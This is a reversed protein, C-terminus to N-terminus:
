LFKAVEEKTHCLRLFSKRMLDLPIVTFSISLVILLERATLGYTRFVRGGFYLILIQIVLVLSMVTVFAKNKIINSMINIRQTRASLSNFVACFMFLAFFGTMLYESGASYRFSSAIGPFKLFLICLFTTYVSSIVIQNEMYDNIIKEGKKKPLEEMYEPLPAEGAFALGALTDMVMNIWLMQTVTIPTEIGLFQSILTISMACINISLQFVIFKRISKFITRGYLIAKVISSFNDDLIVIDSAEKAVETGSGLSFGVDAKKLAPADNVGDGTMGAVLNLEQSLRVLRSKDSPLARAVVRIKPLYKKLQDDTMNQMEDSTLVMHGRAYDLLNSEKGISVATEKSDGTIMVVQVGANTVEEISKTVDQRLEDKICAIGVLTLNSFGKVLKDAAEDSTALALLRNGSSSMDKALKNIQFINNMEMKTGDERYYNTCFPLIKDPAGKLLTVNLDGAVSSASYKNKSDFSIESLKRVDAKLVPYSMAFGLMARDTSNGGVPSQKKGDHGITSGNNYVSSIYIIKWLDKEEKLNYMNDYVKGSGTIFKSVQMKGMTLTGTKDTFLINLSGATEIGVLKRVLVNDKIMRKMNSSLVVTIMVPLGEPVAVVIITVALTLARIVDQALTYPNSLYLMIEAMNFHNDMAISKFLSSVLILFAGLYGIRSIFAALDKLREKLPSDSKDQQLERALRGYYTKEGVDTVLMTASGQCVTSSNFVMYPNSFSLEEKKDHDVIAASVKHAEKTEGNLSSQDTDIQGDILIGDAPIRDGQELKIFDGKVVESTPVECLKGDRYVKCKIKQADDVLKEFALQSGYESISSVMTALIISVAIGISEYWNFNEIFLLINLGLAVLLIKITPDAFSAAYHSLFTKRKVPEIINAGFKKRSIAADSSSLGKYIKNYNKMAHM